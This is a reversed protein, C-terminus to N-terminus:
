EIDTEQILQAHVSMFDEFPIEIYPSATAIQGMGDGANEHYVDIDGYTM